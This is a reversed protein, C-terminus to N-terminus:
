PLAHPCRRELQDGIRELARAQRYSFSQGVLGMVTAAVGLGGVIAGIILQRRMRRRMSDESRAKPLVIGAARAAEEQDHLIAQARLLTEHDEPSISPLEPM